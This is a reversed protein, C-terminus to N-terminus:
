IIIFFLIHTYSSATTCNDLLYSNYEILNNNNNKKKKSSVFLCPQPTCMIRMFYLFSNTREKEGCGADYLLTSGM